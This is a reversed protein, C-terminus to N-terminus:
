LTFTMSSLLLGPLLMSDTSREAYTGGDLLWEREATLAELESGLMRYITDDFRMVALPAVPEGGEVWTTAFRTMGTIRGASLDSYNTYWTDTVYVGTDLRALVEAEALEGAGMVLSSPREARNANPELGYERASRPSVLAGRLQGATVLEVSSPRIFGAPLFRPAVGSEASEAFRISSHLAAGGDLMRLLPTQKTRHAKVGFASFALLGVIEWLAAPTLFVRYSGPDIRKEPRRLIEVQRAARAIKEELVGADFRTGAYLGKAAKDRQAYLSFDFHFSHSTKFLRHGLSSAFGRHLAGSQWLGVLDHGEGLALVAAVADHADPLENPAEEVITKPSQDYLLHPDEPLADLLERLEALSERIMARDAELSGSLTRSASAHRAGRILTLEAIEQSVDGAQRVRAHNVRAFSSEEASVALSAVEDGTLSAFTDTALEFFRDRM